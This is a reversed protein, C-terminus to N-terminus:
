LVTWGSMAIAKGFLLIYTESIRTISQRIESMM